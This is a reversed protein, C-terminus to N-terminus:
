CLGRVKGLGGVWVLPMCAQLFCCSTLLPKLAAALINDISSNWNLAYLAGFLWKFLSSFWSSDILKAWPNLAPRWLQPVRNFENTKLPHCQCCGPKVLGGRCGWYAMWKATMSVKKIRVSLPDLYINSRSCHRSSTVESCGCLGHNVQFLIHSLYEAYNLIWPFNLLCSRLLM